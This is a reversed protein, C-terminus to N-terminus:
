RTVTSASVPRTRLTRCHRALGAEREDLHQDREGDEAGGDDHGDLSERLAQAQELEGAVMLPRDEDGVLLRALDDHGLLAALVAGLAGVRPLTHDLRHRRRLELAGALDRLIV